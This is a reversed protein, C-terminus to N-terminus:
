SQRASAGPKPWSCAPGVVPLPWLLALGGCAELTLPDARHLPHHKCGPALTLAQCGSITSFNPVESDLYRPCPFTHEM